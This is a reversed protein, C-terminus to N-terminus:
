RAQACTQHTALRLARGLQLRPASDGSAISQTTRLMRAAGAPLIAAVGMGTARTMVRRGLTLEVREAIAKRERFAEAM